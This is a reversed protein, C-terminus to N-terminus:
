FMLRSLPIGLSLGASTRSLGSINHTLDILLVYFELNLAPTKKSNILVVPIGLKCNLLDYDNFSKEALASIGVHSNAPFYVVRASLSPTIFNKYQGIYIKNNGPDITNQVDTGGLSKYESYNLKSMGYSLKSNNLLLMGNLTIFLRGFTPGEWMRTHGILISLPYSHKNSFSTNFSPTTTYTPFYVPVYATVSTWHTAISKFNSTKILLDAQGSAFKEEYTTKLDAYFNQQMIKKAANIDQGPVASSDISALSLNFDAEKQLIEKQLQALMAARLADMSQKQHGQMNSCDAFRTKVKGLWKYNITAGLENEFRKDLFSKAYNNALTVDLGVSLLTRIPEDTGDTNQFNHNVTLKGEASNFTVYNTYYSLDTNASLYGTKAALFINMARNSIATASDANCPKNAVAHNISQLEAIISQASQAYVSQSIYFFYFCLLFHRM